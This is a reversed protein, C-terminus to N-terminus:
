DLLGLERLSKGLFKISPVITQEEKLGTLIVKGSSFILFVCKIPEQVRFILGPFVEPEYISHTLSLSAQDLDIRHQFNLSIVLNVIRILPTKTIEYGIQNLKEMVKAVVIEGDEIHKVGTIVMKGNSFLLITCKPNSIHICIGPFKNRNFETDRYKESVKQLDIACEFSTAIVINEIRYKASHAPIQTPNNMGKLECSVQRGIWM